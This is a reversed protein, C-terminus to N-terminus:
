VQLMFVDCCLNRFSFFNARLIFKDENILINKLYLFSFLHFSFFVFYFTESGQLLPWPTRRLMLRGWSKLLLSSLPLDAAITSSGVEDYPAGEVLFSLDLEFFKNAIRDKCFEFRKIFAEQNFKVNLDRMESCVKFVEVAQAKAELIQRSVQEKLETIKAEIKKRREEELALAAKLGVSTHKEKKLGDQLRGVEAAKEKILRDVETAKEEHLHSVKAQHDEQAKLVELRLHNVM